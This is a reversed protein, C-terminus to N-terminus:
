RAGNLAGAVEGIFFGRGFCFSGQSGDKLSLAANYAAKVVAMRWRPKNFAWAPCSSCTRADFPLKSLSSPLSTVDWANWTSPARNKTSMEPKVFSLPRNVASSSFYWQLAYKPSKNPTM